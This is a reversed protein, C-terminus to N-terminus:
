SMKYSLSAATRASPPASVSCSMAGGVFHGPVLEKQHYRHRHFMSSHSHSYYTYIIFHNNTTLIQGESTRWYCDPHFRRTNSGDDAESPQVCATAWHINNTHSHATVPYRVCIPRDHERKQMWKNHTHSHRWRVGAPSMWLVQDESTGSGEVSCQQAESCEFFTCHPLLSLEDRETSRVM